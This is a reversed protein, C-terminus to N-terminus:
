PKEIKALWKKLLFPWLAIIGPIIILRFGMSGGKANEDIVYIGKVQFPFVFLVGLGLYTGLIWLFISAITEATM